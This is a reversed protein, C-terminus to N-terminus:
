KTKFGVIRFIVGHVVVGRSRGPRFQLMEFARKRSFTATVITGRCLTDPARASKVLWWADRLM